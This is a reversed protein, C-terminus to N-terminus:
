LAARPVALALAVLWRPAVRSRCRRACRREARRQQAARTGGTGRHRGEGDLPKKNRANHQQSSREQQEQEQSYIHAGAARAGHKIVTLWSRHEHTPAAGRAAGERTTRTTKRESVAHLLRQSPSGVCAFALALSVIVFRGLSPFFRALLFLFSSVLSLAAPLRRAAGARPACM